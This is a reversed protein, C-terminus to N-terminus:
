PPPSRSRSATWIEFCPGTLRSCSVREAFRRRRQCRHGICRQPRRMRGKRHASPARCGSWRRTLVAQFTVRTYERLESTTHRNSQSRWTVRRSLNRTWAQTPSGNSGRSRAESGSRSVVDAVSRLGVALPKCALRSQVPYPAAGRALLGHRTSAYKSTDTISGGPDRGFRLRCGGVRSVVVRSM